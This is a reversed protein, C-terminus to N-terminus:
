KKKKLPCFSESGTAKLQAKFDNSMADQVMLPFSTLHLQAKSINSLVDQVMNPLIYLNKEFHNTKAQSGDIKLSPPLSAPLLTAM